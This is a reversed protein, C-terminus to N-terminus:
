LDIEIIKINKLCLDFVIDIKFVRYSYEIYFIVCFFCFCLECNKDICYFKILEIIYGFVSCKIISNM